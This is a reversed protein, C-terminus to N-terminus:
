LTNIELKYQTKSKVAEMLAINLYSVERIKKKIKNRNEDSCQCGFVIGTLAEKKFTKLGHEVSDIIRYENEYEWDKSKHWLAIHIDQDNRLYSQIYNLKIYENNYIVKLPFNFTKLDKSVDFRLCVGKHFDSYHSWMLINDNISSLCLIGMEKIARLYAKSVISAAEAPNELILHAKCEADLPLLGQQILYEKWEDSSNNGDIYVACDFPDNFATYSSFMISHNDLIQLAREVSCYKYLITPVKGEKLLMRFYNERQKISLPTM